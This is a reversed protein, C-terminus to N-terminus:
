RQYAGLTAHEERKLLALLTLTKRAFMVRDLFEM